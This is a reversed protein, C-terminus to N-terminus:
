GQHLEMVNQRKQGSDHMWSGFCKVATYAMALDSHRPMRGSMLRRIAMSRLAPILPKGSFEVKYSVHKVFTRTTRTNCCTESCQRTNGQWLWKSKYSELQSEQVKHYLRGRTGMVQTTPQHWQCVCPRMGGEELKQLQNRSTMSRFVPLTFSCLSLLVTSCFDCFFVRPETCLSPM